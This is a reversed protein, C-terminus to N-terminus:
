LENELLASLEEPTLLASPSSPQSKEIAPAVPPAVPPEAPPTPPQAAADETARDAPAEGVPTVSPLEEILELITETTPAEAPAAPQPESPAPWDAAALRRLAEPLDALAIMRVGSIDEGTLGTPVVGVAFVEVGMQRAIALLRLHRRGVLRLDAVLAVTPAVLIEAAAEYATPVYVTQVSKLEPPLGEARPGCLVVVRADALTDSSRKPTQSGGEADSRDTERRTMLRKQIRWLEEYLIGAFANKTFVM